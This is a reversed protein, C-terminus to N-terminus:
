IELTRGEWTKFQELEHGEILKMEITKKRTKAKFEKLRM